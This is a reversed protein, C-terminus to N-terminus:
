SEEVKIKIAAPRSSKEKPVTIRLVGNRCQADVKASSVDEPLTITRLFTGYRRERRLMTHDGECHEPPKDGKIRLEHGVCSLEVSQPDTGAIEATIVYASEEECVDIPPAWDQGDFPGTSVGGHWMRDFLNNMEAQLENISSPIERGFPRFSM